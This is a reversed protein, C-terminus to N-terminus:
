YYIDPKLLLEIEKVEKNLFKLEDQLEITYDTNGIVISEIYEDYVEQIIEKRTKLLSILENKEPLYNM